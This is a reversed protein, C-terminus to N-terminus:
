SVSAIKKSFCIKASGTRELYFGEKFNVKSSKYSRDSKM